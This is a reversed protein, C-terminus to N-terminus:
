AARNYQKEKRGFMRNATEAYKLARAENGYATVTKGDKIVHFSSRGSMPIIREEVTYKM